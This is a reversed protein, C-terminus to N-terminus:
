QLSDSKKGFAKMIIMVFVATISGTMNALVDLVEAKRTITFIEQLLEIMCGYLLAAMLVVILKLVFSWSTFRKELYQFWLISFVFYFLGHVIKDKGLISVSPINNSSVLCAFAIGASWFFALYFKKKPEM